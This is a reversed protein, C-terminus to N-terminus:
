RAGARLSALATTIVQEEDGTPASAIAEIAAARDFGLAVLTGVLETDAEVESEGAAIGEPMRLDSIIRAATKPGVGKVRGLRSPDKSAVASSVAAVGADRLVALASSAGVGNVKCLADFLLLESEDVFAYLTIADERVVTSVHLRVSQGQALPAPTHVLYGVGAATLVVRGHVIGELYGIM